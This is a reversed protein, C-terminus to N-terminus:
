QQLLENLREELEKENMCRGLITGDPGFLYLQPISEYGYVDRSNPTMGEDSVVPWPIELEQVARRTDEMKDRTAMGVVEIGQEQYRVYRGKMNGILQRCPPCWSAFCDMIVYKGKGVYDSLHAEQGQLDKLTLDTFMMGVATDKAKDINKKTIQYLPDDQIDPGATQLLSDVFNLDFSSTVFALYLGVVDNSHSAWVQRIATKVGEMDNEEEFLAEHRNLEDTLASGTVGQDTVTLKGEELVFFSSRPATLTVLYPRKVNGKLTFHHDIVQASDLVEGKLQRMYVVQTTDDTATTGEVLYNGTTTQCASLLGLASLGICQKYNM